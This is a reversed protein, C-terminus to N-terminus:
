SCSITHLHMDRVLRVLIAAVVGAITKGNWEFPTDPGPGNFDESNVFTAIRCPMPARTSQHDAQVLILLVSAM